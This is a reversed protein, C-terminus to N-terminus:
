WWRWWRWFMAWFDPENCGGECIEANADGRVKLWAQVTSVGNVTGRNWRTNELPVAGM